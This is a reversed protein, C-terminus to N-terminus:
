TRTNAARNDFIIFTPSIAPPSFPFPITPLYPLPIQNFIQSFSVDHPSAKSHKLERMVADYEPHKPNLVLLPHCCLKRLYQLAQFIHSAQGKGGGGEGEEKKKKPKKKKDGDEDEAVLVYTNIWFIIFLVCVYIFSCYFLLYIFFSRKGDEELDDDITQKASTKGFSEYLRV